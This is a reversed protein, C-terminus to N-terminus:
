CEHTSALAKERVHHQEACRQQQQDARRPSGGLRADGACLADHSERIHMAGVVLQQRHQTLGLYDIRIQVPTGPGSVEDARAIEEIAARSGALHEIEQHPELALGPLRPAGHVQHEAIVLDHVDDTIQAVDGRLLVGREAALFIVRQALLRPRPQQDLLRGCHARLEVRLERTTIERMPLGKRGRPLVTRPQDPLGEHEYDVVRREHM